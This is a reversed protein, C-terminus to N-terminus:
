FTAQATMLRQDCRLYTQRGRQSSWTLRNGNTELQVRATWRDNRNACSAVFSWHDGVQQKQKFKCVTEGARAGGNDIVAPLLGKAGSQASCAANSAGWVGVFSDALKVASGFLVRETAEDWHDDAVLSHAAKFARLAESSRPGWPGPSSAGLYGFRILRQQVAEADEASALNRKRTEAARELHVARAPPVPADVVPHSPLVPM